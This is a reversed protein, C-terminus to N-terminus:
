SLPIKKYEMYDIGWDHLPTLAIILNKGFPTLSYEVKPPVEAYIKRTIVGDIELEKLQSTLVKESIKECVTKIQGYRLPEEVLRAIIFLKWKGSIVKTAHTLPCYQNSIKKM